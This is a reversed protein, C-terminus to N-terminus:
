LDMIIGWNRKTQDTVEHVHTGDFLAKYAWTGLLPQTPVERAIQRNPNPVKVAPNLGQDPFQSEVLWVAHSALFFLNNLFISYQPLFPSLPHCLQVKKSLCWRWSSM